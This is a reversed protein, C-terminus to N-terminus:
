AITKGVLAFIVQWFVGHQVFLGFQILLPAKAAPQIQRYVYPVLILAIVASVAVSAANIDLDIVQGAKFQGVASSFVIGILVGVYLLIQQGVTLVAPEASPKPAAPAPTGPQPMGELTPMSKTMLTPMIDGTREKKSLTRRNLDFYRLM